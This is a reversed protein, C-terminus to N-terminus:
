GNRYMRELRRFYDPFTKSTCGPDRIVLGDVKLGALAFSMAMRHDDYTDIERARLRDPPEIRLGDQSEEVTAGMKRLESALAAIRDTEKVRMNAVNRITTPGDAFLAVVALTQATDPMDNLDVDVGRLRRGEPPGTVSLRDAQRDVRCGMTELVDVFRVDGQLSGTGLGEVTVTGGAIAPAALFYTANSADPEIAYNTARYRQPAPVIFKQSDQAVTMVGFADMVAGTMELYPQSVVEGGIEIFVDSHAYPAALLLASVLQSSPPSEFHVQGGALHRAHITIPPYGDREPYEVAAGLTRLADVLGGIPRERMRPVGDLRYTGTGVCCAAALFRMVTGANGCFLEAQGVPWQGGSGTVDVRCVQEDVRLAVGLAALADLMHRTDDAILVNTLGSRGDALAAAVLARNTLSKSGPVRVVAHLPGSTPIVRYADM